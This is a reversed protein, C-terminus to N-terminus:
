GGGTNNLSKEWEDVSMEVATQLLWQIGYPDLVRGGRAGYPQDAIPFLIEAGAGVMAEAVSDPDDVVVDLLAGRAGPAAAADTDDADKLTVSSGLIKLEAFVVREDLRYCSVVEADLAHRYFVMAADADAVVLKSRIANGAM